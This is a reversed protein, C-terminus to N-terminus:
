GRSRQRLPLRPQPWAAQGTFGCTGGGFAAMAQEYPRLTVFGIRDQNRSGAFPSYLAFYRKGNLTILQPTSQPTQIKGTLPFSAEVIQGQHVFAIETGIAIRLQRAADPDIRKYATLTGCVYQGIKIPISVSLMLQDRRAIVGHWSQGDLASSIGPECALEFRNPTEGASAGLIRGDRDTIIVTDVDLQRRYDRASDAVTAPDNTSIVAKLVSRNQPLKCQSDLAALQASFVQTLMQGAERVDQRVSRNIERNAYWSLSLLIVAVLGTATGTVLALIKARLSLHM